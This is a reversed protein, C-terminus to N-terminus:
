GRELLAISEVHATHPFMNVAGAAVLRYGQTQVLVGADRALTAPDCSVYVITRPPHTAFSKVLEIAGDRPPDLLAKDFAPLQACAAADFLDIARFDCELGNARANARAREILGANGEFGTVDAGLRAIPLTFNGLGCFFDGVRESPRPDLLTMARRVLVRNVGHNVQTFDTPLFGIRVGFDPLVYDLASADKPWFPAATAPGGPQLWLQVGSAEAFRRLADGDTATPAELVRLVLVTVRDGVAVEIQPLRDRISLGGVLTRLEPLLRAVPAPLVECGTMDAVYSSKREHFGVLVGGKKPVNRVSLRARHRYEWADGYIARLMTEPRVRGVHWLADELVRQKAAVQARADLHQMACGGCIGFFRCRPDVREASPELVTEVRGIEFSPKNRLISYEVTEGTLGGEVFVAKGDRRAVGRGERDLSEITARPM